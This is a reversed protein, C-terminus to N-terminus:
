LQQLKVKLLPSPLALEESLKQAKRYFEEAEKVKGLDMLADGMAESIEVEYGSDDVFKLVELAKNSQKMAILVRAARIRAFQRLIKSSSKKVVFQLKEEAVKLNGAQAENKALMLAALSAYPSKAYSTILKEGFLKVEDKKQQELATLMQTYIMTAHELNSYRQQQWYRWGVNTIVVVLIAFLIYYGYQKLWVQFQQVQEKDSTPM